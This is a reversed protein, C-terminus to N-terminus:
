AAVLKIRDPQLTLVDSALGPKTFDVRVSRANVAVVKGSGKGYREADVLEVVDGRKFKPGLAAKVAANWEALMPLTLKVRSKVKGGMMDHYSTLGVGQGDESFSTVRFVERDVREVVSGIALRRGSLCLRDKYIFAPRGKWKEFSIAATLNGGHERDVACAQSYYREGLMHRDNGGWRNFGFRADIQEFDTRAFRFGSGVALSLATGMAGNLRDWSRGGMAEGEHDWVHQLLKMESAAM